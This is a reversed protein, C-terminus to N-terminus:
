SAEPMSQGLPSMEQGGLGCRYADSVRELLATVRKQFYVEKLIIDKAQLIFM